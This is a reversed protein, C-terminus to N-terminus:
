RRRVELTNNVGSVRITQTTGLDQDTLRTAVIVDRTQSPGQTLNEPDNLAELRFSLVGDVPGDESEPTLRADHVGQTAALGTARLLIGGPIREVTVDTVADIPTGKYRAREQRGARVPGPTPILPNEELADQPVVAGTPESGGFWNFPNANSERITTCGTIVLTAVLIASIPKLM